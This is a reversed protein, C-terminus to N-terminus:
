GLHCRFANRDYKGRMTIWDAGAIDLTERMGSAIDGTKCLNMGLQTLILELEELFAHRVCRPNRYQPVRRARYFSAVPLFQFGNRLREADQELRAFDM